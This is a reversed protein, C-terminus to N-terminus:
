RVRAIRRVTHGAAGDLTAFYVGSSALGGDTRRGDWEVRHTGADLTGEKLTRVTRGQVDVIRLTAPGAAPLMFTFAVRDRFPNPASAFVVGAVDAAPADVAITVANRANLFKGIPLDFALADGTLALHQEM